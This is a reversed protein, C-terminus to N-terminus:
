SSRGDAYERFVAKPWRESVDTGLFVADKSLLDFYFDWDATAAARHYRDLVDAVAAEGLQAALHASFLLAATFLAIRNM